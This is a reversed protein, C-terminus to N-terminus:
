ARDTKWTAVIAPLKTTPDDNFLSSRDFSVTGSLKGRHGRFHSFVPFHSFHFRSSPTEQFKGDDNKISVSLEPVCRVNLNRAYNRRSERAAKSMRFRLIKRTERRRVPFGRRQSILPVM